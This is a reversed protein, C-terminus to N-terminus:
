WGSSSSAAIAGLVLEAASVLVAALGGVRAGLHVGWDTFERRAATREQGTAPDYYYRETQATRIAHIELNVGLWDNYRLGVLGTFGPYAQEVGNSSGGILVGAGLDLSARTGLWKRYRPRVGWRAGDEDAAGLLTVGWASRDRNLMPGLEWTTYWRADNVDNDPRRGLRAGIATEYLLFAGSRAPQQSGPDQGWAPVAITASVMVTVVIARCM